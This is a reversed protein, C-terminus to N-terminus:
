NLPLIGAKCAPQRHNSDMVICWHYSPQTTWLLLRCFQLTTLEFRVRVELNHFHPLTRNIAGTKFVSTDFPVTLEFRVAEAMNFQMPNGVGTPSQWPYSWCGHQGQVTDCSAMRRHQFLNFRLTSNIKDISSMTLLRRSHLFSWSM